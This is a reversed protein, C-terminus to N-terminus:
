CINQRSIEMLVKDIYRPGNPIDTRGGNRIDELLNFVGRNIRVAEKRTPTDTKPMGPVLNLKQVNRTLQRDPKVSLGADALAHLVTTHGWRWGFSDELERIGTESVNPFDPLHAFPRPTSRMVSAAGQIAYLRFLPIGAKRHLKVLDNAKEGLVKFCENRIGLRERCIRFEDLGRGWTRWAGTMESEIIGRWSEGAEASMNAFLPKDWLIRWMEESDETKPDVTTGALHRAYNIVAPCKKKLEDHLRLFEDFPEPM